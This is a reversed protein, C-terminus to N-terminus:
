RCLFSFPFFASIIPFLSSHLRTPLDACRNREINLANSSYQIADHVFSLPYLALLLLAERRTRLPLFFSQDRKRKRASIAGLPAKYLSSLYQFLKKECVRECVSIGVLLIGQRDNSRNIKSLQVFIRTKVATAHLKRPYHKFM